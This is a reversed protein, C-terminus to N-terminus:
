GLPVLRLFFGEDTDIRMEDAFTRLTVGDASGEPLPLRVERYLAIDGVEQFSGVFALSGEEETVGELQMDVRCLLIEGYALTLYVPRGEYRRIRALDTGKMTPAARAFCGHRVVEKGSRVARRM